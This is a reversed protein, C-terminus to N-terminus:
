TKWPERQEKKRLTLVFIALFVKVMYYISELLGISSRGAKRGAMEVPVEKIILGRRKLIYIAEPEPYDDPYDLSLIEIAKQNYARFGSTSDTIREGLLLRNTLSFLRIGWKRFALGRYMGKEMFRSGITVDAQNLFIPELLRPVEAPKHQGDADVQVALDFGRRRGFIFGTQVAGGIGLNIPLSIVSVGPVTRAVEATRDTSGDDVVVIDFDPCFKKIESLVSGISKEENFAPSIVLKKVL